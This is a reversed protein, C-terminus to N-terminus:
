HERHASCAPNFSSSASVVLREDWPWRDDHPLATRVFCRYVLLEIRQDVSLEDDRDEDASDPRPECTDSKGDANFCLTSPTTFDRRFETRWQSNSGWGVSLDTTPRCTRRHAWYLTSREAIAPVLERAGARVVVGARAFLLDGLMSCPWLTRMIEIPAAAESPEVAVIEHFFPHFTSRDVAHMGLGILFAVYEDLSLRPGAWGGTPPPPQFRLLLLDSVRSFAYLRCLAESDPRWALQNRSAVEALWGREDPNDALWPQLVDAFSCDGEYELLRDYLKRVVYQTGYMVM